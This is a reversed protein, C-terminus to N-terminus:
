CTPKWQALHRAKLEAQKVVAEDLVNPAITGTDDSDGSQLSRGIRKPAAWKQAKLTCLCGFCGSNEPTV